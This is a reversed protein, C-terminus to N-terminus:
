AADAGGLFRALDYTPHHDLNHRARDYRRTTRPDAHGAADQVDRLSAGSDLALTVFTHRLSHPSLHKDVGARKALRVVIRDAQGGNLRRGRRDVLLPGLRRDGAHADIAAVTRAALPALAPTDGKRTIALVQHGRECRRDSVDAEYAESVRLGNLALLCVLALDVSSASRDGAALVAALEDRSLGLTPSEDSVKPRRVHAAPSRDASGEEVRYRYFGAITALHRAVTAPKRGAAELQRAHLNVHPRLAELPDVGHSACFRVWDRLDRRYAALTHGGYASLFGAADHELRAEPSARGVEASPVLAPLLEVGEAHPETLPHM